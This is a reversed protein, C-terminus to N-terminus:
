VPMAARIVGAVAEQAWAQWAMAATAAEASGLNAMQAKLHQAEVAAKEPDAIAMTTVRVADAAIQALMEQKAPDTIQERMMAMLGDINPMEM